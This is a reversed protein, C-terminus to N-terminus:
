ALHLKQINPPFLVDIINKNTNNSGHTTITPQNYERKAFKNESLQRVHKVLQCTSNKSNSFDAKHNRWREKFTTGTLGIYSEETGEATVVARYVIDRALCEGNM